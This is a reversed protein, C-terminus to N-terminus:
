LKHSQELELQKDLLMTKVDEWLSIRTSSERIQEQLKKWLIKMKLIQQIFKDSSKKKSELCDMLIDYIDLTTKYFTYRSSPSLSSDSFPYQRQNVNEELLPNMGEQCRKAHYVLSHRSQFVQNCICCQNHNPTPVKTIDGYKFSTENGKFMEAIWYRVSRSVKPSWQYSPIVLMWTNEGITVYKRRSGDGYQVFKIREMRYVVCM